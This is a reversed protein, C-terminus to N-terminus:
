SLHENALTAKTRFRFIRSLVFFVCPVDPAIRNGGSHFSEIAHSELM